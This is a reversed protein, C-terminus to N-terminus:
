KLREIPVRVVSSRLVTAHILLLPRYFLEPAVIISVDIVEIDEAVLYYLIVDRLLFAKAVVLMM